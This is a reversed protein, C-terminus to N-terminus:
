KSERAARAAERKSIYYTGMMTGVSCGLAYILVLNFNGIDNVITDLVYYWIFINVITIMGSELIRAKTVSETWSTVIIMEVIGVIFLLLERMHSNENLNNFFRGKNVIDYKFGLTFGLATCLAKFLSIKHSNKSKTEIQVVM